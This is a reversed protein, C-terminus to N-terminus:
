SQLIRLVFMRCSLISSYLVLHISFIICNSGVTVYHKEAGKTPSSTLHLQDDARYYLVQRTENVANEVWCHRTAANRTVQNLPALANRAYKGVFQLRCSTTTSCGRLTIVHVIRTSPDLAVVLDLPFIDCHDFQAKLAAAVQKTLLIVKQPAQVLEVSTIHQQQHLAGSSQQIGM